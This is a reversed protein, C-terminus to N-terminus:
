QERATCHQRVKRQLEHSRQAASLARVFTHMDRWFESENASAPHEAYHEMLADFSSRCRV